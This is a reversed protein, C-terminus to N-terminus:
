CFEINLGAGLRTHPQPSGCNSRAKMAELVAVGEAFGYQEPMCDQRTVEDDLLVLQKLSSFRMVNGWRSEDSRRSSTRDARADVNRRRANAAATDPIKAALKAAKEVTALPSGSAFSKAM